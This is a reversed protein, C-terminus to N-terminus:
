GGYTESEKIKIKFIQFSNLTRLRKVCFYGAIKEALGTELLAPSDVITRQIVARSYFIQFIGVDQLAFWFLAANRRINKDFLLEEAL